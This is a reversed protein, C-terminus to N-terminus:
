YVALVFSVPQQSSNSVRVKVMAYPKEEQWIHQVLGNGSATSLTTTAGGTEISVDLPTNDEAIVILQQEGQSVRYWFSEEADPSLLSNLYFVKDEDTARKSDPTTVYQLSHTYPDPIEETLFRVVYEPSFVIHGALEEDSYIHTPHLTKAGNDLPLTTFTKLCDYLLEFQKDHDNQPSRIASRQQVCADAFQQLANPAANATCPALISMLLAFAAIIPKPMPTSM